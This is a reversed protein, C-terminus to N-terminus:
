YPCAQPELSIQESEIDKTWTYHTIVAWEGPIMDVCPAGTSCANDVDLTIKYGDPVCYRGCEWPKVYHNHICTEPLETDSCALALLALLALLHM